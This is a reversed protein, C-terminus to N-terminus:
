FLLNNNTYKLKISFSTSERYQDSDIENSTFSKQREILSFNKAISIYDIFSNALSISSWYVKNLNDISKNEWSKYISIEKKWWAAFAECNASLINESNIVINDCVISKNDFSFNNKLAQFENLITLPKLRNEKNNKLFVIEKSNFINESKYLNSFVPVIEKAQKSKISEIEKKYYDSMASVSSCSEWNKPPVDWLLIYCFPDLISYNVYENSKQIYTYLYLIFIVILLIFNLLKFTSSFISITDFIDRKENDKFAKIDSTLEKDWSFDSFIDSDDFDSVVDSTKKDLNPDKNDKNFM